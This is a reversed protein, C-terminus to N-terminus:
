DAKFSVTIKFSIESMDLERPFPKFPSAQRISRVCLNQLMRNPASSEPIVSLTRVVGNSKLVFNVAIEGEGMLGRYNGYLYRRIKERISQSYSLYSINGELEPTSELRIGRRVIAKKAPMADEEIRPERAIDPTKAPAEKKPPEKKEVPERVLAKPEKKTEVEIVEKPVELKPTKEAKFYTVEIQTEQKKVPDFDLSHWPALVASHVGISVLLAVKFPKELM